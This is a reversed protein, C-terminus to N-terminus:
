DPRLMPVNLELPHDPPLTKSPKEEASGPLISTPSSPERLRGFRPGNPYISQRNHTCSCGQFPSVALLIALCLWRGRRSM